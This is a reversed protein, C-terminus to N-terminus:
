RAAGGACGDHDAVRFGLSDKEQDGTPAGHAVVDRSFRPVVACDGWADWIFV